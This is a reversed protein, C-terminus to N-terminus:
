RTSEKEKDKYTFGRGLCKGCPESGDGNCNPCNQESINKGQGKCTSCRRMSEVEGNGHCVPCAVAESSYGSGDCSSCPIKKRGNCEGCRQRSLRGRVDTSGWGNCTRCKFYRQGGCSKCTTRGQVTGQGKCRDCKTAVAVYGKGSCNECVGGTVEVKQTGNCQHCQKKGTANCDVCPQRRALEREREVTEEKERLKLQFEHLRSVLEQRRKEIRQKEDNLLSLAENMEDESSDEDLNKGTSSPISSTGIGSPLGMRKVTVSDFGQQIEGALLKNIYVRIQDIEARVERINKLVRRKRALVTARKEEIRQQERQRLVEQQRAQQEAVIRARTAEEQRINLFSIISVILIALTWGVIWGLLASKLSGKHAEDRSAFLLGIPGIFFGVIFNWVHFGGKPRVGASNRILEEYTKQQM